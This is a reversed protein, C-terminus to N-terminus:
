ALTPTPTAQFEEVGCGQRSHWFEELCDKRTSDNTCIYRWMKSHVHQTCGDCVGSVHDTRLSGVSYNGLAHRIRM